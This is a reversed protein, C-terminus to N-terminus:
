GIAKSIRKLLTCVVFYLVANIVVSYLFLVREDDILAEGRVDKWIFYLFVLGAGSVAHVVLKLLLGLWSDNKIAYQISLSVPIGIFTTGISCVIVVFCFVTLDGELFLATILVASVFASLYVSIIAIWLNRYSFNM